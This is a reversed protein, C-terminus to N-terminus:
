KKVKTKISDEKFLEYFKILSECLQKLEVPIFRFSNNYNVICPHLYEFDDNRFKNFTCELLKECFLIVYENTYNNGKNIIENIIFNFGSELEYSSSKILYDYNM